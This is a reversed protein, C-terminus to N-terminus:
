LHAFLRCATNGCGGKPYILMTGQVSQGEGGRLVFVVFFASYYVLFQFPVCLLPTSLELSLVGSFPPPALASRQAFKCYFLPQFPLLSVSSLHYAVAQFLVSLLGCLKGGSGTLLM